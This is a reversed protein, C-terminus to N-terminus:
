LLRMKDKVLVVQDKSCLVIIEKVLDLWGVDHYDYARLFINCVSQTTSELLHPNCGWFCGAFGCPGRGVLHSDVIIM